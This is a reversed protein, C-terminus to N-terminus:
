RAWARYGLPVLTSIPKTVNYVLDKVPQVFPRAAETENFLKFNTFWKNIM